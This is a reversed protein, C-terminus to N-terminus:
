TSAKAAKEGNREARVDSIIQYGKSVCESCISLGEYMSPIFFVDKKHEPVSGCFACTQKDRSKAM